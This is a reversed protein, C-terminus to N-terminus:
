IQTNVKLFKNKNSNQKMQLFKCYPHSCDYHVIGHVNNNGTSIIDFNKECLMLELAVSFKFELHLM